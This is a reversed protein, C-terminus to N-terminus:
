KFPLLLGEADFVMDSSTESVSVSDTEKLESVLAASAWFTELELTNKIRAVRSHVPDPVKGLATDIVDRDTDLAIPLRVARFVGSTIANMYMADLDIKDMLRKTTLDAWGIGMANGHSPETLDLVIIFRYDPDRDGGDRRWHGTINPDMGSGSIDKGIEDMILLDLKKIPLTPFFKWAEKLLKRDVQIFAEPMALELAQTGGRANELVALGCLIPAKEIIIRAAPEIADAVGFAHISEAGKRKGCGIVLMKCLGSEVPRRFLTHPKVRNIVFVGDAEMADKSFLVNYGSELKGLSVVEMSSVVPVGVTAQSVGMDELVGIQGEATAGGHSGMGPIIFPNLDMEKLCAVVTKVIPQIDHIGRSGVAVAINAGASVPFTRTSMQERVAEEIDQISDAQFTQQILHMAPYQM